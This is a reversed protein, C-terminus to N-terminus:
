FMLVHSNGKNRTISHFVTLAAQFVTMPIDEEEEEEEEEEEQKEEEEEQGEQQSYNM